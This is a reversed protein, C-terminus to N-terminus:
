VGRQDRVGGQERGVWNLGRILVVVQCVSRDRVELVLGCKM